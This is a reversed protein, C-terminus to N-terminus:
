LDFDRSQGMLVHNRLVASIAEADTRNHRSFQLIAPWNGTPHGTRRRHQSAHGACGTLSGLALAQLPINNTWIGLASNGLVYHSGSGAYTAGVTLNPTIERQIGFNWNEFYPPKGAVKSPVFNLSSASSPNTTTFGAGYGPDIFPPKQYPPVGGDWLFAPQGTVASAFSASANFGLQGPSVGTGNNGTGGQHAYMIGFGTRIVTKSNVKFALGLRPGFNLYHTNMPVNGCNCTDPGNGAFALAGLRGGAAPNPMLPNLFSTRNYAEHYPGMLDYRLGLNLTLRPSVKWDDQIYGSYGHFRSGLEVVYNQTVSASSVAGLLYSAYANGTTALLTGTPSFGATENNSFSFTARTGTNPNMNNDQLRQLQFGFAVAHKGHVWLMNDQLTWANEAQNFAVANTGAWVNPANPGGFNITPFVDSAAGAPLGTLGAETPYQGGETASIIPIWIRAYSM